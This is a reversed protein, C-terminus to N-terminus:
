FSTGVSKKQLTKTKWIMKADQEPLELRKRDSLWVRLEDIKRGAM